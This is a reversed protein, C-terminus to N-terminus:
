PKWISVVQHACRRPARITWTGIMKRSRTAPAEFIVPPMTRSAISRTRLSRQPAIRSVKARPQHGATPAMRARAADALMAGRWAWRGRPGCGLRRMVMLRHAESRSGDEVAPMARAPLVLQSGLLQDDDGKRDGDGEGQPDEARGRPVAEPLRVEPRDRGDGARRVVARVEVDLPPDEDGLGSGRHGLQLALEAPRAVLEDLLLDVLDAGRERVEVGGRRGREHVAGHQGALRVREPDRDVVVLDVGADGLPVREGFPNACLQDQHVGQGVIGLGAGLRGVLLDVRRALLGLRGDAPDLAPLVEGGDGGVHAVVEGGRRSPDEAPDAGVVGDVALVEIGDGVRLDAVEDARDLGVVPNATSSASSRRSRVVSPGSRSWSAPWFM